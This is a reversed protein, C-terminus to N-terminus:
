SKFKQLSSFRFVRSWHLVEEIEDVKRGVVQQWRSASAARSFAACARRMGVCLRQAAADHTQHELLRGQARSHAELAADGLEAARAQVEGAVLDAEAPALRQGVEGAGHALVDISEHQADVPVLREVAERCCAVMGM